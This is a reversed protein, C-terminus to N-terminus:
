PTHPTERWVAPAGGGAARDMMWQGIDPRGGTDDTEDIGLIAPWARRGAADSPVAEAPPEEAAAVAPPEAPEERRIPDQRRDKAARVPTGARARHLARALASVVRYLRLCEEPGLGPTRLMRTASVLVCEMAEIPDAALAIPLGADSRAVRLAAALAIVSRYYALAVLISATAGSAKECADRLAFELAEVALCAGNAVTTHRIPNTSIANM